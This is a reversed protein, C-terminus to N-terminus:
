GISEWDESPVVPAEIDEVIRGTGRLLEQPIDTGMEVHQVLEAVPTGRKTIVYRSGTQGVDDILALCKAKFDSASVVNM